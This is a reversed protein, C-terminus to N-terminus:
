PIMKLKELISVAGVLNASLLGLGIWFVIEIRKLRNNNDKSTNSFDKEIETMRYELLIVREELSAQLKSVREIISQSM